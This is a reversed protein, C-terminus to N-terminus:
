RTEVVRYGMSRYLGEAPDNGATVILDVCAEGRAALARMAMGLGARALGHRKWEAATMSFAILPVEGRRTVITAAAFAGERVFVFSADRDFGGFEGAFVGRVAGRAGDITEGEDDITGRYSSLMLEALGEVDGDGPPRVEFYALVGHPDAVAVDGGLECRM